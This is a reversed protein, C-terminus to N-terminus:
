YRLQELEALLLAEVHADALEATTATAPVPQHAVDTFVVVAAAGPEDAVLAGLLYGALADITPYEFALTRPLECGLQEELLKKLQIAMLSDMGMDFFGQEPDPLLGPALGLVAAVHEQLFARLKRQRLRRPAAALSTQFPSSVVPRDAPVKPSRVVVEDLLHRQGRAEYVPGYTAWHIDAVMVQALDSGLLNGLAATAAAPPLAHLGIRALAMRDAAHTMGVDAWPGWDISLGPLGLARRHHALADLFQNAAAYAGLDRSGLVASVSSFCVFFDLDIHRTLEHLIWAGAVKPRLVTEWAAMDLASLPAPQAVGAAHVIGRLALGAEQLMALVQKVQAPESADAALAFVQTGTAELQRIVGVQHAAHSAPPLSDWVARPPLGRRSTLVLHRAGQQVLGRAVELGLGGLGGTILYAANPACSWSTPRLDDAPALRLVYRRDQRFAVEDEGDPRHLQQALSALELPSPTPGLDVIGGWHTPYELAAVRALGWVPAQSVSVPTSDLPQAGATVLWLRTSQLWPAEAMAHLLGPVHQGAVLCPWSAPQHGADVAPDLPWLDVVAEITSPAAHQLAALLQDWDARRAPNVQYLDPALRAFHPGPMVLIVHGGGATLPAALGAALAVGSALIVWTAPAASASDHAAPPLPMAQWQMTYFWPPLAGAADRAPLPSAPRLPAAEGSQGSGPAGSPGPQHKGNVPQGSGRGNARGTSPLAPRACSIAGNAQKGNVPRGEVPRAPQVAGDFPVAPRAILTPMDFWHRTREFPYTPLPVRRRCTGAEFGHWNVPAGQVYLTGLSHLLQDGDRRGKRLSPLWTGVDEPLCRQGMGLLTPTPGIEVFIQYGLAALTEISSAFQVPTRVHACWYAPDTVMDGTAVQGTVNSILECNPARYRVNRAMQWFPELMPEMLPSHFAHSVNLRRTRIGAAHLAALVAPLVAAAGSIVTETPGNIAAIAVEQRVPEVFPMVQGASAFVAAMEGAQVLDGMLRGRTAVLRLGDDLDFVGAVCAAAYEGVSHGMVAGPVIGWSRWLEALAVALAFLAPQTIQTQELLSPIGPAPFLHSLLSGGLYARLVADCHDLTRGFVPETQYLEHGMGAYQAGQGTFLFAIKPPQKHSGGGAQVGPARTGQAFAQLQSALEHTTHTMVALRQSFHARGVSATHCLDPLSVPDAHEAHAACQEALVRLATPTQASLVFLHAARDPGARRAPMAPAAEVIVHANTGGFGFSSVGALRRPTDPWPQATTPVQFRTETLPILPNVAHLHLHPPITGHQLALLVKILGAIGAAAELHGINTKVSGLWCPFAADGPTALVARLSEFEIPDGLATGTGHAEIYTIEDPTVGARALAQRIVAQQALGNPATLGNSLGDQNVASGRIFGAIPDGDRQADALRKLVIVGCGEGRVYGDARADFTKCRGDNALMQAQSLAITLHPTLMLNVGGVLALDCEHLHLNQCALHLAVLSSSCATDIAVSPGRLDLVYSLRNAAIAHANGTGAYADVLEPAHFQFQSYDSSSIGVFVGTQSGALTPPAIGARELAEWAVELLLRQQPDMRAAERPAIGFFRADFQDVAPLFGGWRTCHTTWRGAPVEGIADIGAQLLDWFAEPSAAGPFRCGLGIVAIPEVPPLTPHPEPAPQPPRSPQAALHRVLADITPYEWLLAPSLRCGLRTELDGSLTVAQQSTLGYSAFPEHPAIDAAPIDLTAALQEVLWAQLTEPALDASMM